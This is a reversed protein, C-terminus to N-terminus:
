VPCSCLPLSARVLCVANAFNPQSEVYMASSEYMFSTELVRAGREGLLGLAQQINHVRDGLNSGLAIVAYHTGPAASETLSITFDDPTRTVVVEASEAFM